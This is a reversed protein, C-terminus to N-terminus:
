DSTFDMLSCLRLGSLGGWGGKTERVSLPAEKTAAEM